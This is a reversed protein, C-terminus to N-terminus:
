SLENLFLKGKKLTFQKIDFMGFGYLKVGKLYHMLVLIILM